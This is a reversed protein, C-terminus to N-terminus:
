EGAVIRRSFAQWNRKVAAAGAAYSAGVPLALADCTERAMVAADNALAGCVRNLAVVLMGPSSAEIEEEGSRAALVRFARRLTAKDDGGVADTIDRLKM